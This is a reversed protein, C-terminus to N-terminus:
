KCNESASEAVTSEPCFGADLVSLNSILMELNKTFIFSAFIV